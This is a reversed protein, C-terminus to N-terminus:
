SMHDYRDELHSDRWVHGTSQTHSAQSMYDYRDELRYGYFACRTSQSMYDYRNELQYSRFANGTAPIDSAQTAPAIARSALYQLGTSAVLMVVLVAMVLNSLRNTFM